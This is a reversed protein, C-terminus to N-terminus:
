LAARRKILMREKLKLELARLDDRKGEFFFTDDDHVGAEVKGTGAVLSLSQVIWNKAGADEASADHTGYMTKLLEGVQDEGEAGNGFM